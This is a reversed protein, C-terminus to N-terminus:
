LIDKLTVLRYPNDDVVKDSMTAIKERKQLSSEAVNKKRELELEKELQKIRVKLEEM